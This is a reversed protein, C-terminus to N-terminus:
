KKKVLQGTANFFLSLHQTSIEAIEPADEYEASNNVAIVYQKGDAPTEILSAGEIKWTSYETKRWGAKVVEPLQSWLLTAKTEQWNGSISYTTVYSIGDSVFKAIYTQKKQKFSKVTANPYKAKLSDQVNQPVQAFVTFTSFLLMATLIQKTKM